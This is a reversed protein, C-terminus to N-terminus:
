SRINKFLRPPMLPLKATTWHEWVGFVVWLVLGLVLPVLTEPSKWPFRRGGFNLGVLLLVGASTFLLLGIYDIEKALEFRSKTGHYKTEFNPPQYFFFLLLFGLAELGCIYWYCARWSISSHDLLGYAILPSVLAPLGCM